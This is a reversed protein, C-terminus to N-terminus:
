DDDPVLAIVCRPSDLPPLSYDTSATVTSRKNKALGVMWDDKEEGDRWLVSNKGQLQGQQSFM